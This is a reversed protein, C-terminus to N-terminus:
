YISFGSFQTCAYNGNVGILNDLLAGGIGQVALYVTQGTTLPIIINGAVQIWANISYFNFIGTRTPLSTISYNKGDIVLYTQFRTAGLVNYNAYVLNYAFSYLGSYPITYIGTTYDYSNTTDVNETNCIVKYITGDGTVDNVNASLTSVFIARPLNRNIINATAM